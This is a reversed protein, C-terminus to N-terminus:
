KNEVVEVPMDILEMRDDKDASVQKPISQTRTGPMHRMSLAIAAVVAVLLVIGAIEFPWLYHTFLREGVEATNSFGAPRPEPIPYTAIGTSSKYWLVTLVEALMVLAVGIGIPLHKVFGENIRSQDVNLMMIVFLFLVMVAGVYVLVLVIGLFEAELLIWLAAASFFTLILFLVSYVPNRASIVLTAALVMVTSFIYFFIEQIPM